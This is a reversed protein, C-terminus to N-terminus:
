FKDLFEQMSNALVGNPNEKYVDFYGYGCDMWEIKGTDNNFLILIEGINFYFQGLFARHGFDNGGTWESFIYDIADIMKEPKKPLLNLEYEVKGKCHNFSFWTDNRENGTKEIFKEEAFDVVGKIDKGADRSYFSKLDKHITFGMHTEAKEWDIQIAGTEKKLFEQLKM